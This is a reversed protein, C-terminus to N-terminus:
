ELFNPICFVMRRRRHIYTTLIILIPMLYTDLVTDLVISCGDLQNTKRQQISYVYRFDPQAGVGHKTNHPNDQSSSWSKKDDRHFVKVTTAMSLGYATWLGTVDFLYSFYGRKQTGKRSKWQRFSQCGAHPDGSVCRASFSLIHPSDRRNWGAWTNSSRGDQHITHCASSSPLRPCRVTAVSSRDEFTTRM